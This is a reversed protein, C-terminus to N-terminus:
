LGLSEAKKNDWVVTYKIGGKLQKSKFIWPSKDGVVTQFMDQRIKEISDFKKKIDQSVGGMSISHISSTLEAVLEADYQSPYKIGEMVQQLEKFTKM